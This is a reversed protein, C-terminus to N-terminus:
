DLSGVLVGRETKAAFASRQKAMLGGYLGEAEAAAKLMRASTGGSLIARRLARNAIRTVTTGWETLTEKGYRDDGADTPVSELPLERLFGLFPAELFPWYAAEVDIANRLPNVGKERDAQRGGADSQSALALEAYKSVSALLVNRVDEVFRLAWEVGTTLEPRDIYDRPLPLSEQRWASLSARDSEIGFVEVDLNQAYTQLYGDSQVVALWDFMRPRAHSISPARDGAVATQQFIAASDRWLARERKITLPTWGKVIARPDNNKRFPVMTEASALEFGDPFQNGKMLVVRSVGIAGDRQRHPILRARRSQWTLLHRYGEPILDAADTPEDREWAPRDRNRVQMPVGDTLSYRHLNLLLTEFLNRGRVLVVACKFIPSGDASKYLLPNEGKRLSILGGPSFTQVAALARAAEAPTYPPLREPTVHELFVPGGDAPLEHIIQVIWKAYEEELDARQYFPHTEHFLDFRHAWARFYPDIHAPSFRCAAWLDGWDDASEPGDLASHLLAILLRYLSITALPSSTAIERLEHARQLVERIGFEGALTGDPNLCPLWPEDLLNFTFRDTLTTM